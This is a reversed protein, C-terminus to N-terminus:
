NIRISWNPRSMFITALTKIFLVDCKQSEQLFPVGVIMQIYVSNLIKQEEISQRDLLAVM